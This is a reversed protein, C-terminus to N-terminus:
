NCDCKAFLSWSTSIGAFVDVVVGAFFDVLVGAFFDVLVGAFFDVLEGAFVGVVKCDNILVVNFKEANVM